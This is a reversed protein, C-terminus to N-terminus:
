SRVAGDGHDPHGEAGLLVAVALSAAEAAVGAVAWAAEAVGHAAAHAAASSMSAGFSLGPVSEVASVAIVTAPQEAFARFCWSALSWSGSSSLCRTEARISASRSPKNQRRSM